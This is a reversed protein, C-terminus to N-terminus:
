GDDIGIQDHYYIAAQDHLHSGVGLKQGIRIAEVAPKADALEAFEFQVSCRPNDGLMCTDHSQSAGSPFRRDCTFGIGM